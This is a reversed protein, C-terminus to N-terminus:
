YRYSPNLANYFLFGMLGLVFVICLITLIGTFRYLLFQYKFAHEIEHTESRSLGYRIKSGMQWYYFGCIVVLTSIVSFIIGPQAGVGLYDQSALMFALIITFVIFFLLFGLFTSWGAIEFWYKVVSDSVELQEHDTHINIDADLPHDNKFEDM